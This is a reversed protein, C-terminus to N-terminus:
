KGISSFEHMPQYKLVANNCFAMDNAKNFFNMTKKFKGYM